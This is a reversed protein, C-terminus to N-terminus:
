QQQGPYGFDPRRTNRPRMGQPYGRRQDEQPYGMGPQARYAPQPGSPQTRYGPQPAEPQGRYAPQPGSAANRYAAPSTGRWPATPVGAPWQRASPQRDVPNDGRMGALAMRAAGTITQVGIYCLLAVGTLIAMSLSTKPEGDRVFLEGAGFAGVVALLGASTLAIVVTDKVRVARVVLVAAAVMLFTGALAHVTLMLPGNEIEQMIGARQDASPVPVYLNLWMGLGFQVVLAILTALCARRLGALGPLRAHRGAVLNM